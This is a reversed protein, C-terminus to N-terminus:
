DEGDQGKEKEWTELMDTVGMVDETKDMVEILWKVINGEYRTLKYDFRFDWDRLNKKLQIVGIKLEHIKDYDRVDM